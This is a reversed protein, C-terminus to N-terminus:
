KSERIRKIAHTRNTLSIAFLISRCSELYVRTTLFCVAASQLPDETKIFLLFENYVVGKLVIYKVAVVIAIYGPQVCVDSLKSRTHACAHRLVRIGHLPM